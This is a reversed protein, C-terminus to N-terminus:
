NKGSAQSIWWDVFQKQKLFVLISMEYLVGRKSVIQM